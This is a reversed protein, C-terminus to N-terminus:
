AFDGTSLMRLFLVCHLGASSSRCRTYVPTYVSGGGHRLGLKNAEELITGTLGDAQRRFKAKGALSDVRRLVFGCTVNQERFTGAGAVPCIEEALKPANVHGVVEKHITRHIADGFLPVDKTEFFAFFTISRM